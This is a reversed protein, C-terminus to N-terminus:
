DASVSVDKEFFLRNLPFNKIVPELTRGRTPTPVFIASTEPHDDCYKLANDLGMAYFATSLADADTANPTVVTVSLLGSAPWGTRPDLLHGYRKGDYRFYQINSGSTAMGQDKLVITAYRRDTFLPNKLGIPWGDHLGHVGAAFLSSQGGHVLFNNIEENILHNAARDIGYGKGISAFDLSLRPRDFRITQETEDLFVHSMGSQELADAIQEETPIKGVNRCRKWLQILAGTAPDFAGNTSSNLEQCHKLFHFLEDGIKQSADCAFQNIRAIDSDDRYITLMQEVDRVMDFADGAAMVQRPPGPNMIVSWSCGMAKTELRVTDSATPANALFGFEDLADAVQDGVRRLENQVVQGTLFERRNSNHPHPM